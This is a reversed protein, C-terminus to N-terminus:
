KNYGRVPACERRAGQASVECTVIVLLLALPLATASRRM